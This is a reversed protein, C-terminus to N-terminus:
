VAAFNGKQLASQSQTVTYCSSSMNRVQLQFYQRDNCTWSSECANSWCSQCTSHAQCASSGQTPGNHQCTFLYHLEMSSQGPLEQKQLPMAPTCKLCRSITSTSLLRLRLCDTTRLAKSEQIHASCMWFDVSWEPASVPLARSFAFCLDSLCVMEAEPDGCTSSSSPMSTM